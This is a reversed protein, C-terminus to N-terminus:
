EYLNGSAVELSSNSEVYCEFDYVQWMDAVLTKPSVKKVLYDFGAYSFKGKKLVELDEPTERPIEKTILQKTPISFVADIHVGEVYLDGQTFTTTVKAVLPIPDKYVKTVAEGYINPESAEEDLFSFEARDTFMISFVQEIGDLFAQQISLDAM